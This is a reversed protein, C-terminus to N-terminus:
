HIVYNWPDCAEGLWTVEPKKGSIKEVSAAIDEVAYNFWLSEIASHPTNILMPKAEYSTNKNLESQLRSEYYAQEITDTAPHHRLDSTVYVDAKSSRVEDFLSDGAGPLVAVTQVSSDLNGAVQVGLHTKPLANHVRHAFDRLTMPEDLVGVRGLGVSNGSDDVQGNSVLPHLNKLGFAEAAAHAVGRWAVDANTHGVWLACNNSILRNVIEGRVGIGSVEHVAKFFLPHHTVLLDSGMKIACEVADFTPDCVCVIRNVPALMNGVILGPADWDEAYELPYLKGLAKVTEYLTTM